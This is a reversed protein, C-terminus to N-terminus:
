ADSEGAPALEEALAEYSQGSAVLCTMGTPMTVTITWTGTEKNAFTEVVANNAGLGIAQRSEGYNEALKALVRDRQGCARAQQAEAVGAAGTALALAALVAHRATTTWKWATMTMGKRPQASRPWARAAVPIQGRPADGPLPVIRWDM